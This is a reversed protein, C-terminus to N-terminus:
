SFKDTSFTVVNTVGDFGPLGSQEYPKVTQFIIGSKDQMSFSNFFEDTFENFAAPGGNERRYHTLFIEGEISYASNGPLSIPKPTISLEFKVLEDVSELDVAETNPYDVPTTPFNTVLFDRILGTVTKRTEGIPKM